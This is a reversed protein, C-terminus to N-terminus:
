YNRCKILDHIFITLALYVRSGGLHISIDEPFGGPEIGVTITLTSPSCNVM